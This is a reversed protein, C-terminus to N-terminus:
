CNRVLPAAIDWEGGLEATLRELAERDRGYLRLQDGQGTPDIMALTDLGGHYVSVSGLERWPHFGLEPMAARIQDAAAEFDDDWTDATWGFFYPVVTVAVLLFYESLSEAQTLWADEFDLVYVAPDASHAEASRYAWYTCGQNEILVGCMRPDGSGESIWRPPWSSQMGHKVRLDTFSNFPLTWWERLAAPILEPSVLGDSGGEPYVLEGDTWRSGAAPDYGWEQHFERYLDWRKAPDQEARHAALREAFRGYDIAERPSANM